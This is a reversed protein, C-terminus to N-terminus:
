HAGAMITEIKRMALAHEVRRRTDRIFRIVDRRAVIGILRGQEDVVPLRRVPHKLFLEAVDPLLDNENLTILDTTWFKEVPQDSRGEGECLLGLLDRESLVGLLINNADVVPLGSIQHRLLLDLAEDVPTDPGITVLQKTMVQHVQLKM